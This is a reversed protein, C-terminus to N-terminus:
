QCGLIDAGATLALLGVWLNGAQGLAKGGLGKEITRDASVAIGLIILVERAAQCREEPTFDRNCLM